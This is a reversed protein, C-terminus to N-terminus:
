ILRSITNTCSIIAVTLGTIIGGLYPNKTVKYLMRDIASAGPIILLFAFLQAMDMPGNNDSFPMHKTLVYGGYQIVLLIIIPLMSAFTIVLNNAWSHKRSSRLIPKLSAIDAFPMDAAAETESQVDAHWQTSSEPTLLVPLFFKRM